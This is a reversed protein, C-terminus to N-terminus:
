SKRRLSMMLRRAFFGFFVRFASQNLSRILNLFFTKSLYILNLLLFLSPFPWLISLFDLTYASSTAFLHNGFSLINLSMSLFKHHLPINPRQYCGSLASGCNLFLISALTRIFHFRLRYIIAFKRMKWWSALALFWNAICKWSKWPFFRQIKCFYLLIIILKVDLGWAVTSCNCSLYHGM